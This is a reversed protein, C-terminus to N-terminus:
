VKVNEHHLLYTPWPCPGIPAIAGERCWVSLSRLIIWELRVHFLFNNGFLFLGWEVPRVPWSCVRPYNWGIWFTASGCVCFCVAILFCGGDSTTVISTNKLKVQCVYILLHRCVTTKCFRGGKIIKKPSFDKLRDTQYCECLFSLLVPWQSPSSDEMLFILGEQM